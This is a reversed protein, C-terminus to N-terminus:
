CADNIYADLWADKEEQEDRIHVIQMPKGISYNWNHLASHKFYGFTTSHIFTLAIDMPTSTEDRYVTFKIVRYGHKFTLTTFGAVGPQTRRHVSMVVESGVPLTLLLYLDESLKKLRDPSISQPDGNCTYHATYVTAILGKAQKETLNVATIFTKM